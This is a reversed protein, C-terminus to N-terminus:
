LHLEWHQRQNNGATVRVKIKRFLVPFAPSIFIDAVSAIIRGSFSEIFDRLQEPETIRATRDDIAKSRVAIRLRHFKRGCLDFM